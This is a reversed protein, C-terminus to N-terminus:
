GEFVPMQGPAPTYGFHGRQVVAEWGGNAEIRADQDRFARGNVEEPDCIARLQAECEGLVDRYGPDGALDLTEQPDAALDYLEETPRKGFWHTEQYPTLKGEKRLKKLELVPPRNDRYQAQLLHRDFLERRASPLAATLGRRLQRCCSVIM